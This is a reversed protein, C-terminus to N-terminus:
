GGVVTSLVLLVQEGEYVTVAVTAGARLTPTNTAAVRVSAEEGATWYPDAAVNFPGTPGARFGQASFFPIPPQHVLAEGDVTVAFRLDRVDLRDGGQHVFVLRDGTATLSLSVQSPPDAVTTSAQGVAVAGVVTAAVVTLGVLLVAGFAPSVARTAAPFEHFM